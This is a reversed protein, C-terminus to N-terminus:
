RGLAWDVAANAHIKTTEYLPVTIDEPRVLLEIETCGAIIAQAGQDILKNIIAQYKILSSPLVLGKVLEHYIIDHVIQRDVEDPIITSIGHDHYRSRMFDGEMTFKTALLGVSNIGDKQIALATADAIHLLPIQVASTIDEALKHMTNTCLVVCDAGGNELSRAASSMRKGLADWDGQHQLHAIEGFDVSYMLCKASHVGGLRRQIERNIVQYYLSSSEWSMGGILGITKM